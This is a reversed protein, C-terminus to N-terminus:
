LSIIGDEMVIQGQRITMVPWGQLLKDAWPCNRALSYFKSPEVKKRKRPDIIVLDAATGAQIRGKNKLGLIQVPRLTMKTIIQEISLHRKLTTLSVALATELGIVGPAGKIKDEQTHPAHDTAIVDITNDKLGAIIAQRDSENRLPPNMHANVGIKRYHGATLSFYHPATECTVKVKNVKALRILDVSEKCSVHQIHVPLQHIEALTLVMAIYYVEARRDFFDFRNDQCHLLLSVKAQSFFRMAQLLVEPDQIGKGDDSAASFRGPLFDVVAKGEQNQTAAIVQLYDVPCINEALVLVQHVKEATDIVPVTNAMALVTTFGGALAAMGGSALTEKSEQGPTRFHVHMDVLGPCVYKGTCDIVRGASKLKKGVKILHDGSFLVDQISATLKEPDVVYGNRLLTEAM